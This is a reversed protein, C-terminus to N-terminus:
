KNIKPNDKPIEKNVEPNDTRCALYDLSVGYLEALIKSKDLPPLNGDMEWYEISRRPIGTKESVKPRSLGKNERIKRLKKKISYIEEM